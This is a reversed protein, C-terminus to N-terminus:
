FSVQSNILVQNHDIDSDDMDVIYNLQLEAVGTPWFNIGWILWESRKDDSVINDLDFGDWRMLIQVKPSVMYGCTVHFGWPVSEEGEVPELKTRIYEGSLLLGGYHLRADAGLLLRDGDFQPMLGGVIGAARDRSFAANVGVELSRDARDDGSIDPMFSIRGAYLYDGDNSNAAIGNGNFVGAYYNLTNGALGGSIEFGIQRGTSLASVVRARNVFDVNPAPTLYEKSFPAKFQGIRLRVARSTKYYMGADLISPAATFSSQLFYGFGEDFEGKFQIRAMGVSFGNSGSMTRENQFDFVFQMVAAVTFYDKKFHKRFEELKPEEGDKALVHCAAGSITVAILIMAILRKM